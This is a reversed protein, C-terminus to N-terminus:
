DLATQLKALAMENASARLRSPIPGGDHEVREHSLGSDAIDRATRHAEARDLHALVDEVTPITKRVERWWDEWSTAVLKM